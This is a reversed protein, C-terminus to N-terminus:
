RLGITVLWRERLQRRRTKNRGQREQRSRRRAGTAIERTNKLWAREHPEGKLAQCSLSRKRREACCGKKRNALPTASGFSWATRRTGTEGARVQRRSREAEACQYPQRQYEKRFEWREPDHVARRRDGGREPCLTRRPRAALTQDGQRTPPVVGCRQPGEDEQSEQAEEERPSEGERGQGARSDGQWEGKPTPRAAGGPDRGRRRTQARV